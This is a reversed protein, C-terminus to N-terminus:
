RMHRAADVHIDRDSTRLEFIPPDLVSLLDTYSPSQHRHHRELIQDNEFDHRATRDVLCVHNMEDFKVRIEIKLAHPGDDSL